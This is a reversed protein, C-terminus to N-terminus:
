QWGKQVADDCSPLSLSARMPTSDHLRLGLHAISIYILSLAVWFSSVEMSNWVASLKTRPPNTNSVLSGM